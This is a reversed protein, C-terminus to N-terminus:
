QQVIMVDDFHAHVEAGGSSTRVSLQVKHSGYDALTVGASGTATAQTALTTLKERIQAASFVDANGGSQAFAPICVAAVALFLVASKM